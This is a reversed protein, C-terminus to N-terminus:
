PVLTLSTALGRHCQGQRPERPEPRTDDRGTDPEGNCGQPSASLQRNQSPKLTLGKSVVPRPSTCDKAGPFFSPCYWLLNYREGGRGTYQDTYIEVGTLADNDGM